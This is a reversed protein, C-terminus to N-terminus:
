FIVKTLLSNTLIICVLSITPLQVGSFIYSFVNYNAQAFNKTCFQRKKVGLAM